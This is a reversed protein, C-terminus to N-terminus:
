PKAKAGTGGIVIEDWQGSKEIAAKSKLTDYFQDFMRYKEQTKAQEITDLYIDDATNDVLRVIYFGNDTEIIDSTDGPKMAKLAQLIEKDCTSDDNSLVSFQESELTHEELNLDEWDDSELILKKMEKLSDHGMQIEEKSKKETTGDAKDKNKLFFVSEVDYQVYDEPHIKKALKDEDVKYSDIVKQFYKSVIMQQQELKTLFELTAPINNKEKKSMSDFTEKAQERCKTNEDSTLNVGDELAKQYLLENRVLTDYLEDKLSDKTLVGEVIESDWYSEGYREEYEKAYLENEKEIEWIHYLVVDKMIPTQNVTLVQIEQNKVKKQCGTISMVCLVVIVLYNIKKRFFM